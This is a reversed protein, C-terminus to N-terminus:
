RTERQHPDILHEYETWIWLTQDAPDDGDYTLVDYWCGDDRCEVTVTNRYPEGDEISTRHLWIRLGKGNDVKLDCTYGESITEMDELQDARPLMKIGDYALWDYRETPTV